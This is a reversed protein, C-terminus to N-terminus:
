FPGTAVVFQMNAWVSRPSCTPRMDTCVFEALQRYSDYNDHVLGSPKWRNIVLAFLALPM